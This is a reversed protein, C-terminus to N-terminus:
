YDFGLTITTGTRGTQIDFHDALNKVGLIGRGLGTRSRYKGALITDLNPIGRGEDEAVIVIRRINTDIRFRVEGDGVYRAINRALESVATIIKQASYGRIGVLHCAERAFMRTANLDSEERVRVVTEEIASSKRPKNSNALAARISTLAAERQSPPILINTSIELQKLVETTSPSGDNGRQAKSIAARVMARASIPSVFRELLITLEAPLDPATQANVM